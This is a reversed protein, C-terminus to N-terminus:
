CDPTAGADFDVDDRSHCRLTFAPLLQVEVSFLAGPEGFNACRVAAAEPWPLGALHHLAQLPGRHTVLLSDSPADVIVARVRATLADASEGGDPPGASIWHTLWHHYAAHDYAEIANWQHGTWRGHEVERLREDVHLPIGLRAALHEAIDQCRRRPSSLIRRLGLAALAAAAAAALPAAPSRQALELHGVAGAFPEVPPHRIAFLRTPSAAPETV